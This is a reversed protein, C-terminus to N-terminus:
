GFALLVNGVIKCDYRLATFALKVTEYTNWLMTFGFSIQYRLIVVNITELNIRLRRAASVVTTVLM